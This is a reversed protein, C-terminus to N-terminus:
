ARDAGYRARPVPLGRALQRLHVEQPPTPSLPQPRQAPRRRQHTRVRPDDKGTFDYYAALHLVHDLDGGAAIRDFAEDLPGDDGLDVQHWTINPGEPARAEHPARRAFAHIEHTHQLAAVIHRGIFGSAGTVLLRPRSM